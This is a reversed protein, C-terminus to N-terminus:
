GSRALFSALPNGVASTTRGLRRWPYMEGQRVHTHGYIIDM